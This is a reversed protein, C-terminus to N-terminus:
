CEPRAVGEEDRGVVPVVRGVPPGVVRPLVDREHREPLADPRDVEPHAPRERVEPLRDGLVEADREADPRAEEALDRLRFAVAVDGAKIASRRRKGLTGRAERTRRAKEARIALEEGTLRRKKKEPKFGFLALEPNERGILCDVAAKVDKLFAHTDARRAEREVIAAATAIQLDRVTRFPTRTEELRRELEEKTIIEGAVCLQTGPKM